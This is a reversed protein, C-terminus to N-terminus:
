PAEKPRPPKSARLEAACQKADRFFTPGEGMARVFGRGKVARQLRPLLPLREEPPCPECSPPQSASVSWARLSRRELQAAGPDLSRKELEFGGCRECPPCRADHALNELPCTIAVEFRVGDYRLVGRTSERLAHGLIQLGGRAETAGARTVRGPGVLQAGYGLWLTYTWVDPAGTKQGYREAVDVGLRGEQPEFRLPVCRAPGNGWIHRADVSLAVSGGAKAWQDVAFRPEPQLEALAPLLSVAWAWLAEPTTGQCQGAECIM